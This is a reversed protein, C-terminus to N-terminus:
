CQLLDCISQLADSDLLYNALMAIVDVDPYHFFGPRSGTSTAQTGSAAGWVFGGHRLGFEIWAAVKRANGM